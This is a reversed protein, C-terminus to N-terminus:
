TRESGVLGLRAAGSALHNMYARIFLAAVQPVIANGYARLKGVRCPVGHALPFTGPEVPRAKGDTCPLLEVREWPRPSAICAPQLVEGGRQPEGNRPEGSNADALGHPTRGPECAAGGESRRGAGRVDQRESTPLGAGIPDGVRWPLTPGSPGADPRVRQREAPRGQVPAASGEHNGPREDRDRERRSDAVHRAASARSPRRLRERESAKRRDKRSLEAGDRRSAEPDGMDCPGCRCPSRRRKPETRGEIRGHSEPLEM